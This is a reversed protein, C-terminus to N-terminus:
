KKSTFAGCVHHRKQQMDDWHMEYVLPFFSGKIPFYLFSSRLQQENLFYCRLKQAAWKNLHPTRWV